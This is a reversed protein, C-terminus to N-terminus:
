DEFYILVAQLLTVLIGSLAYITGVLTVYLKPGVGFRLMDGM